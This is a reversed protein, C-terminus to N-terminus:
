WWACDRSRRLFQRASHPARNRVRPPFPHMTLLGVLGPNTSGSEGSECAGADAGRTPENGDADRADDGGGQRRSCRFTFAAFGVRTLRFGPQTVAGSRTFRSARHGLEADM